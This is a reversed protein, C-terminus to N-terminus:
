LPTLRGILPSAHEIRVILRPVFARRTIYTIQDYFSAYPDSQMDLGLLSTVPMLSTARVIAPAALLAAVGGIFTRRSLAM